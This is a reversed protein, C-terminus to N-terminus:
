LVFYRNNGFTYQLEKEFQKGEEYFAILSQAPLHQKIKSVDIITHNLPTDQIQEANKVFWHFAIENQLLIEAALKAKQNNGVLLVPLGPNYDLEIWRRIKLHFFAKQQYHDSNRSTRNQHEHWLLTTENLGHIKINNRYWRFLLDYDEPYNLKKFGGIEIFKKFRMVWNPSAITCERYISEYWKQNGNINNLWTEYKKYGDSIVDDSFYKVNGTVLDVTPYHAFVDVMKQLRDVPMIDDIDFRSIYKPSTKEISAIGTNLADIIGKGSNILLTFRSHGNTFNEIRKIVDPSSQDFILTCHWDEFSQKLISSLTQEAFGFDERCPIIIHLISM